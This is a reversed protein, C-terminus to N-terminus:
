SNPGRLSRYHRKLPKRATLNQGRNSFVSVGQYVSLSSNNKNNNKLFYRYLFSGDPVQLLQLEKKLALTSNLRMEELNPDAAEDAPDVYQRPASVVSFFFYFKVTFHLIM